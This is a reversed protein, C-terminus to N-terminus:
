LQIDMYDIMMGYFLELLDFETRKHKKFEVFNMKEKMIGYTEHLDVQTVNPNQTKILDTTLVTIEHGRDALDKVLSHFVVQHSISPTPFIGLIRASETASLIFVLFCFHRFM